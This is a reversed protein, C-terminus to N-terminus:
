EIPTVTFRGSRSKSSVQPKNPIAARPAPIKSMSKRPPVDTWNRNFNYTGDLAWESTEQTSVGAEAEMWIYSSAVGFREASWALRTENKTFNFSDDFLARNTLTLSPAVNLQFAALWDSSSGDLCFNLRHHGRNSPSERRIPSLRSSIRVSLM